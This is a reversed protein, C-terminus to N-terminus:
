LGNVTWGGDIIISSGTMYSSSKSALFIAAGVIDDVQGWRKIIMRSLRENSKDKNKFSKDTMDTHIYGPAINNVRINSSALDVALAKTMGTLAAKSSIYAPNKPFGLYSGISTINIISAGQSKDILEALCMSTEYSLFLNTDFTKKFSKIGSSNPETIGAANVLIDINKNEEKILNFEHKINEKTSFNVSKYKYLSKKNKEKKVASRGYGIVNAGAMGFGEAIAKGIGRSAGIVIATKGNLGFADQIYKNMNISIM